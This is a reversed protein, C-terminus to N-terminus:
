ASIKSTRRRKLSSSSASSSLVVAPATPSYVSGAKIGDDKLLLSMLCMYVSSSYTHGIENTMLFSKSVRDQFDQRVEKKSIGPITDKLLMGHAIKVLGGSPCHYILRQFYDPSDAGEVKLRYHDWAGEVCDLYTYVSVEGDLVDVTTSPRLYDNCEFTYHGTKGLEFEVIRPNDSILM